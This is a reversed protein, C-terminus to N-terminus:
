GWGSVLKVSNYQKQRKVRNERKKNEKNNITTNEEFNITCVKIIKIVSFKALFYNM